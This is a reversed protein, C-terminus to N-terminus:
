TGLMSRFCGVIARSTQSATSDEIITLMQTGYGLKAPSESRGERPGTLMIYADGMYMQIGSVPQGHRYYESFGFVRTLWECAEAVNRYVLHPLMIAAPVSRNNM